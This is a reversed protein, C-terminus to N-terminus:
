WFVKVNQIVVFNQRFIKNEKKTLFQKQSLAGIFSL